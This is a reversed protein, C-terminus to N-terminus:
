ELIDKKKKNLEDKIKQKGELTSFDIPDVQTEDTEFSLEGDKLKDLNIKKRGTLQGKPVLAKDLKLLAKTESEEISLTPENKSGTEYTSLIKGTQKNITIYM